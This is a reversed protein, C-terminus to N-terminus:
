STEQGWVLPATDTRAAVPGRLPLGMRCKLGPWVLLTQLPFGRRPPAGPTAGRLAFPCVKRSAHSHLPPSRHGTRRQGLGEGPGRAVPPEIAARPRCCYRRWRGAGARAARAPAPALPPPRAPARASPLAPARQGSFPGPAVKTVRTLPVISGSPLAWLLSCRPVRRYVCSSAAAPVQQPSRGM